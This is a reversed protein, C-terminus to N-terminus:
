DHHGSWFRLEVFPHHSNIGPNRAARNANSIHHLRYGIVLASGAGLRREALLGLGLTFNTRVTGLPVERDFRLVGAGAEVGFRWPDGGGLFRRGLLAAGFGHRTGDGGDRLSFFPVLELGLEFRRGVMTAVSGRVTWFRRDPLSHALEFSVGPGGGVALIVDREAPWSGAPASTLLLVILTPALVMALM